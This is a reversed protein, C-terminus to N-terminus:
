GPDPVRRVVAWSKGDFELEMVYRERSQGVFSETRVRASKPDRTLLVATTQIADGQKQREQCPAPEAQCRQRESELEAAADGKALELAESFRGGAARQSLELATDKPRKTLSELSVPLPQLTPSTTRNCSLKAGAWSLMTVAFIAGVLRVGLVSQKEAEREREPSLPRALAAPKAPPPADSAPKSPPEAPV